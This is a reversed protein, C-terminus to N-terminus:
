QRVDETPGSVKKNQHCVNKSVVHRPADREKHRINKKVCLLLTVRVSCMTVDLLCTFLNAHACVHIDVLRHLTLCLSHLYM